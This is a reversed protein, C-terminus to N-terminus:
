EGNQSTNAGQAVGKRLLPGGEHLLMAPWVVYDVFRGRKTYDQFRASDFRSTPDQDTYLVVPPDQLVALWSVKICADIYPKVVEVFEINQRECESM